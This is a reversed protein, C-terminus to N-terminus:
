RARVHRGSSAGHLVLTLLGGVIAACGAVVGDRTESLLGIAVGGVVAILVVLAFVLLSARSTASPEALLTDLKENVVPARSASTLWNKAHDSGALDAVPLEWVYRAQYNPDRADRLFAGAEDQLHAGTDPHTGNLRFSWIALASGQDVGIRTDALFTGADAVPAGPRNIGYAWVAAAVEEASPMNDEGARPDGREDYEWHWPEPLSGGATAWGPQYWGFGPGNARLWDHRPAGFGGLNAFDVASGHTWEGHISQGVPITTLGIDRMHQQAARDRYCSWGDSPLLDGLGAAAMADRLRDYSAATNHPATHASGDGNHGPLQALASGPATGNNASVAITM